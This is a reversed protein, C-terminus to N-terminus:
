LTPNNGSTPAAQTAKSRQVMLAALSPESAKPMQRLQERVAAESTYVPPGSHLGLNRHKKDM